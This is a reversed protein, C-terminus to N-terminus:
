FTLGWVFWRTGLLSSCNCWDGLWWLSWSALLLCAVSLALSSLPCGSNM